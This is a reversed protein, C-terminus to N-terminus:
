AVAPIVALPRSEAQLQRVGLFLLAVSAALMLLPLPQYLMSPNAGPDSVLPRLIFVVFLNVAGHCIISALLSGTRIALWSFYLGALAAFVANQASFGLHTIGFLFTPPLLAIWLPLRRRLLQLIAGRYLCEELFPMFIVAKLALMGLPIGSIRAAAAAAQGPNPPVALLNIIYLTPLTLAVGTVASWLATRASIAAFPLLPLNQSSNTSM